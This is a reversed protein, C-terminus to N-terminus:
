RQISVLYMGFSYYSLICLSILLPMILIYKKTSIIGILSFIISVLSLIPILLLPLLSTSETYIDGILLMLVSFILAVWAVGNVMGNKKGM